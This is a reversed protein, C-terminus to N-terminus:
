RSSAQEQETANQLARVSAEELGTVVANLSATHQGTWDGHFQDRDPGIWPTSELQSTLQQTTTRIEDARAQLQKSLTRVANIDMGTFNSM